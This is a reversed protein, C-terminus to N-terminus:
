QQLIFRYAIFEVISQSNLTVVVEIEIKSEFFFVALYHWLIELAQLVVGM